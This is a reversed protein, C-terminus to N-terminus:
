QYVARAERQAMVVTCTASDKHTYKVTKTADGNEEGCESGVQSKGM